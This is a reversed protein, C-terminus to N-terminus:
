ILSAKYKAAAEKWPQKVLREREYKNFLILAYQKAYASNFHGRHNIEMDGIFTKDIYLTIRMGFPTRSLTSQMLGVDSKFKFVAQIIKFKM